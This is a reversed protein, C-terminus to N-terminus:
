WKENDLEEYLKFADNFYFRASDGNWADYFYKGITYKSFAILSKNGLENALLHSEKVYKLSKELELREGFIGGILTKINM